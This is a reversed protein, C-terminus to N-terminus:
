LNKILKTPSPVHYKEPFFIFLVCFQLIPLLYLLLITFSFMIIFVCINIGPEIIKDEM